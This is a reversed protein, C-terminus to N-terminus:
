VRSGKWVQKFSNYRLDLAILSELPFDNPISELELGRWCLWRLRKPFQEYSGILKASNLQLFKLRQMKLFADSTFILLNSAEACDRSHWFFGYQSKKSLHGESKGLFEALKGKKGYNMNITEKASENAELMQMELKIGEVRETGESSLALAKVVLGFSSIWHMTEYCETHNQVTMGGILAVEKLACRWGKIKQAWEEGDECNQAVFRM